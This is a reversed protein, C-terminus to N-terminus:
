EPMPSGFRILNGFPDTHSGERLGYPTDGVPRTSGGIGPKSWEEWLADADRVYLYTSAPCEVESFALHIGIGDRDAFGYEAGDDYAFTKFGLAGYHALGAGLEPVPFIPCFSSFQRKKRATGAGTARDTQKIGSLAYLTTRMAEVQESAIHEALQHDVSDIAISVAELVEYGRDTLQLSIRRRDDEDPSRQVYGRRVLTEVVQSIAQKTVGMEVPFDQRTGGNREIGALLFAGNRPLDAVGITELQARIASAYVGRAARMLTPTSVENLPIEV